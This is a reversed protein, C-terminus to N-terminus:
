PDQYQMYEKLYTKIKMQKEEVSLIIVKITNKHLSYKQEAPTEKDPCCPHTLDQVM